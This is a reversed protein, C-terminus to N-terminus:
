PKGRDRPTQVSGTIAPALPAASAARTVASRERRGHGPWSLRRVQERVLSRRDDV